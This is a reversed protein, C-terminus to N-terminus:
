QLLPDGEPILPSYVGEWWDLWTPIDGETTKEGTVLNINLNYTSVTLDQKFRAASLINGSYIDICEGSNGTYHFHFRRNSLFNISVSDPPLTYTPYTENNILGMQCERVAGLLYKEAILVETMEIAPIWLPYTMTTLIGITAIVVVMENSSFGRQSLQSATQAIFHKKFNFLTM